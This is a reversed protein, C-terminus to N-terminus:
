LTPAYYVVVSHISADIQEPCEAYVDSGVQEWPVPAAFTDYVGPEAEVTGVILVSTAFHGAPITLVEGCLASVASPEAVPVSLDACETFGFLLPILIRM